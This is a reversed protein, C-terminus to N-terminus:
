SWLCLHLGLSDLDPLMCTDQPVRCLFRGALPLNSPHSTPALSFMKLNLKIFTYWRGHSWLSRMKPKSSRILYLESFLVKLLWFWTWNYTATTTLFLPINKQHVLFIELSVPQSRLLIEPSFIFNTIPLSTITSAVPASGLVWISPAYYLWLSSLFPAHPSADFAVSSRLRINSFAM